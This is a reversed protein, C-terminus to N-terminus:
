TDRHHERIVQYLAPPRFDSIQEALARFETTGIMEHWREVSDLEAVNV